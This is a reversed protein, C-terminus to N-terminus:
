SSYQESDTQSPKWKELVGELDPAYMGLMALYEDLDAHHLVPDENGDPDRRCYGQARYEVQQTRPNWYTFGHGLADEVAM